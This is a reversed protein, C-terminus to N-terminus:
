KGEGVLFSVIKELLQSFNDKLFDCNSSQSMYLLYQVKKQLFVNVDHSFVIKELIDWLRIQYDKTMATVQKCITIFLEM